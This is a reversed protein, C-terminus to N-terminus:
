LAVLGFLPGFDDADPIEVWASGDESYFAMGKTGNNSGCAIFGGGDVPVVNQMASSLGYVTAPTTAKVWSAGNDDSYVVLMRWNTGGVVELGVRVWRALSESYVISPNTGAFLVGPPMTVDGWSTLDSSAARSIRTSTGGCIFVGDGYAINRGVAVSGGQSSGEYWTVLDTSWAVRSQPTSARFGSAVWKGDGYALSDINLWGFATVLDVRLTWNARNTSSYVKPTFPSSFTSAALWATGNTTILNYLWSDPIDVSQTSFSAGNNSSYHFPASSLIENGAKAFKEVYTGTLTMGSDSALSEALNILPYPTGSQSALAEGGIGGIVGGGLLFM